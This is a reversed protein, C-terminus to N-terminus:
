QGNGWGGLVNSWDPARDPETSGPQWFYRTRRKEAEREMRGRAGVVNPDVLEDLRDLVWRQLALKAFWANSGPINREFMRAAERGFNTRKDDAAEVLNSWTLNIAPDVVNGITPGAVFGGVTVGRAGASGLYDGLIGAGGGKVFGRAWLLPDDMPPPDRGDRIEGLAVALVGGLTLGLPLAAYGARSVGGDGYIARQLHTMMMIVSYTKFQTASHALEGTWTGRQFRTGKGGLALMTQARLSEGPTAFKTESDIMSFMKVALRDGYGQEALDARESVDGPRLLHYGGDDTPETARIVDWEDAGIGYRRLSKAFAPDLAGMAKGREGAMEMMFSLGTSQKMSVTHASLGTARMTGDALRRSLEPVNFSSWGDSRFMREARTTHESFILGARNAAERGAASAPNMQKLYTGMHRVVSLGNFKSTVAAFWPDTTAATVAASGLSSSVNWNRVAAFGRAVGRDSADAMTLEGTYFRWMRDTERAARTARKALKADVGGEVTPKAMKDIVDGLWRVTLGPNPGLVQMAAIDRTMGDIHGTVANFADGTGFRSQYELWADADKFHLFRPDARRGAVESGVMKGPEMKDLGESTITRWVSQLAEELGRPSFARGTKLDVTRELDLRPVTFDRWAAYGAEAIGLADHAQPLGWKDMQGIHGGHLNFLQRLWEATTEFAEALERASASEVKEGFRARVFDDHDAANTLRNLLDRKYRNLYDGMKSWALDRLGAHTNSINEVGPVAEHHDFLARAYHDARGGEDVFAGLGALVDRQVTMQLLKARRNNDVEAAIREILEGTAQISAASKGLGAELGEHLRDYETRWRTARESDIKGEAELRDLCARATM